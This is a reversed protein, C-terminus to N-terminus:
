RWVYRTSNVEDLRPHCQLDHHALRRPLDRRRGASGPIREHRQPSLLPETPVFSHDQGIMGYVITIAIARALSQALAFASKNAASKAYRDFSKHAKDVKECITEFPLIRHRSDTISREHKFFTSCETYPALLFAETSVMSTLLSVAEIQDSLKRTIAATMCLYRLYELPDTQHVPLDSPVGLVIAHTFSVPVTFSPDKMAAGTIASALLGTNQRRNVM